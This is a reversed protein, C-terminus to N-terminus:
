PKYVSGVVFPGWVTVSLNRIEIADDNTLVTHYITRARAIAGEYTDHSSDVVWPQNTLRNQTHLSIAIHYSRKDPTSM